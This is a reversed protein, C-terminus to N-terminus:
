GSQVEAGTGNSEEKEEELSKVRRGFRYFWLPCNMVENDCERVLPAQGGQCWLCYKHISKLHSGSGRKVHLKRFPHLDCEKSRCKLYTQPTEPMCDQCRDIIALRYGRGTARVVENSMPIGQSEGIQIGPLVVQAKDRSEKRLLGMKRGWEKREIESQTKM